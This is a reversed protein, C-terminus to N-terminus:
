KYICILISFSRNYQAVRSEIKDRKGVKAKTHKKTAPDYTHVAFGTMDVFYLIQKCEDWHPGEGLELQETLKIPVPPM